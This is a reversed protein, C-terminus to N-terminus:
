SYEQGQSNTRRHMEMTALQVQSLSSICHTYDVVQASIYSQKTKLSQGM